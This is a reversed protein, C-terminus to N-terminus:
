DAGLGPGDVDTRRLCSIIQRRPPWASPEGTQRAGVAHFWQGEGFGAQESSWPFVPLDVLLTFSDPTRLQGDNMEGVATRVVPQSDTDVPNFRRYASVSDFPNDPLKKTEIAM